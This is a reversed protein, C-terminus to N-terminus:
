APLGAEQHEILGRWQEIDGSLLEALHETIAVLELWQQWESSTQHERSLAEVITILAKEMQRSQTALQGYEFKTHIGHLAACLAPGGVTLLMLLHDHSIVHFTVAIIASAFVLNTVSHMKKDIREYRDGTFKHYNIQHIVFDLLCKRTNKLAFENSTRYVNGKPSFPIGQERLTNQAIWIEPEQSDDAMGRNKVANKLLLPTTMVPYTVELGSVLEALFRSDLWTSHWRTKHSKRVTWFIGALIVCELIPWVYWLDSKEFLVGFIAAFIASAALLHVVWISLRHRNSMVQALIDASQFVVKLNEPSQLETNETFRSDSAIPSKLTNKAYGFGGIFFAEFFRTVTLAVRYKCDKPQLSRLRKSLPLEELTISREKEQYWIGPKHKQLWDTLAEMENSHDIPLEQFVQKLETTDTSMTRFTLRWSSEYQDTKLVKISGDVDLWIVPIARMVARYVLRVTGGVHGRPAGGDWIVLLMDAYDLALKDRIRIAELNEQEGDADIDHIKPGGLAVARSAGLDAARNPHLEGPVLLHLECAQERAIACARADTGDTIGTLIRLKLPHLADRVTTIIADLQDLGKTDKLRDSRHGAVMLTLHSRDMKPCWLTHREFFPMLSSQRIEM